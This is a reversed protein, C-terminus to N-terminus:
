ANGMTQPIPPMAMSVPVQPASKQVPAQVPAPTMGGGFVQELKQIVLAMLGKMDPQPQQLAPHLPLGNQDTQPTQDTGGAKGLAQIAAVIIRTEADLKAAAMDTAIREGERQDKAQLEIQQPTPKPPQPNQASLIIKQKWGDLAGEVQRGLKFVRSFSVLMEIAVEPPMSGREVMPGVANGFQAIGQVFGSINQQAQTVDSRITSDTEVDVRYQRIVDNRLLQVQSPTLTIGTMLQIVQPTFKDAIIQAMMRFIDRSYNQVAKQLDQIRLTGWQTKIQQAGLTENAKTAGRMIDAIGTIEYIVQKVSERQEALQRVVAILKDIPMLWVGNELSGQSQMVEMANEAPALHGDDLDKIKEFADGLAKARIGRWRLAKILKTLRRTITDLEQAQQEYLRYPEFPILSDSRFIARMPEPCPFFGEVNYPPSVVAFPGNKYSEVIFIVQGSEKDWIEWTNARKFLDPPASSSKDDFGPVTADLKINKGIEPNLKILQDRTMRHRFAVWPVASWEKAPGHRFDDWQVPQLYVQQYVVGPQGTEPDPSGLFPLYQVRSIGRGPLIADKANGKLSVDFGSTDVSYSICREIVDAVVKADPDDDNFRRRVDPEPPSNYIAPLITEVNAHLINFKQREDDKGEMSYIDLSKKAAKRWDEEERSALNIAEMWLKYVAVPDTGQKTEETATEVTGSSPLVQDM